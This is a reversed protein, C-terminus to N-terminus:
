GKTPLFVWKKLLPIFQWENVYYHNEIKKTSFNFLGSSNKVRIWDGKNFVGVVEYKKNEIIVEDKPQYKYRHKRISPKFGKRNLQLSRKNKRKQIIKFPFARKQSIGEAIVFADTHHSKELKLDHRRIKTIYGFSISLNDCVKKLEEFLKFRISSMFTEPKFERNKKLVDHLNLEHLKAHCKEHLLALNDVRDTGEDKRPIIHHIRFTNGHTSKENCLQCLAHERDILYSKLNEYEYLAGKQYEDGKIEPNKIKQVDFSATELNIKTVPLLFFIKKLIRIHSDLRHQISPALLKQKKRNLFRPKRYWLKSRRGIRYMRKETLLKSIDTRLKVEASFFEQKESTASIGINEYGPDIGLTIEQVQNECHFILKITFPKFSIIIAKKEKLLKRAKAKSCPMLAKGDKSQVYVFAKLAEQMGSYDVEPDNFSTKSDQESLTEEKNLTLVMSCRVQPADSPINSQKRREKLKQM